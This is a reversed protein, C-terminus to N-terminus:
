GNKMKGIKMSQNVKNVFDNPILEFLEPHTASELITLNVIREIFQSVTLGYGDCHGKLCPYFIDDIEIGVKM